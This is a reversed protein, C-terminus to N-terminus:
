PLGPSPRRPLRRLPVHTAIAIAQPLPGELTSQPERDVRSEEAKTWGKQKERSIASLPDTFVEFYVLRDVNYRRAFGSGDGSKHEYVRRKLNNTMGTYLVGGPVNALIYVYYHRM